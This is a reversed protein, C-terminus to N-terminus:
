LVHLNWWPDAEVQDAGSKTRLKGLLQINALWVPDKWLMIGGCAETDVKTAASCNDQGTVFTVRFWM